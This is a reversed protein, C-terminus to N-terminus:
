WSLVVPHGLLHAVEESEIEVPASHSEGKLQIAKLLWTKPWSDPLNVFRVTVGSGENFQFEGDGPVEGIIKSIPLYLPNIRAMDASFDCRGEIQMQPKEGGVTMGEAEFTLIVSGYEQCALKKQGTSDLFIFHGLGISAGEPTKRVEFGTVLRKKIAQSLKEGQLHSIDVQGRIAAPDRLILNDFHTTRYFLLGFVFCVTFVGVASVFKGM